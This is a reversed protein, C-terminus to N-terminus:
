TYKAFRDLTKGGDWEISMKKRRRKVWWGSEEKKTTIQLGLM